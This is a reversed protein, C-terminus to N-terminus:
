HHQRVLKMSELAVEKGLKRFILGAIPGRGERFDKIRIGFYRLRYSVQGRSLGTFDAITQATMGVNALTILEINEQRSLGGVAWSKEQLVGDPPPPADWKKLTWTTTKM